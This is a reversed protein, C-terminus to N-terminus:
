QCGTSMAGAAGRTITGVAMLMLTAYLFPTNSGDLVDLVRLWALNICRERFLFQAVDPFGEAPELGRLLTELEPVVRAIGDVVRWLRPSM